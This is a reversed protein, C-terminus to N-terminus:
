RCDRDSCDFQRVFPWSPLEGQSEMSLCNWLSLEVSVMEVSLVKVSVVEM